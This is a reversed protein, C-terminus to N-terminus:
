TRSRVYLLVTTQIAIHRICPDSFYTEEVSVVNQATPRWTAMPATTSNSTKALGHIIGSVPENPSADVRQETEQFPRM